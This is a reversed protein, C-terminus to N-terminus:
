PGHRGRSRAGDAPILVSRGTLLGGGRQHASEKAANGPLRLSGVHFAMLCGDECELESLTVAGAVLAPRM